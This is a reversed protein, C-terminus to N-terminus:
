DKEKSVKKKDEKKEKKNKLTVSEAVEPEQNESSCDLSGEESIGIRDVKMTTKNKPSCKMKHSDVKVSNLSLVNRSSNQKGQSPKKGLPVIM